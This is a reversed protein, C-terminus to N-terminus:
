LKEALVKTESGFAKQAPYRRGNDSVKMIQLHNLPEANVSIHVPRDPGYYYIRDFNLENVVYTVIDSSLANDTRIDCAAGGRGCIVNQAANLECASHQDLEPATGNSSNKSIYRKLEASTFGYTIEINGFRRDLPILIENVLLELFSTSKSSAPSNDIDVEHKGHYWNILQQGLPHELVSKDNPIEYLFSNGKKIFALKGCTRMHMLECDSLGMIVKMERSSYLYTQMKIAM